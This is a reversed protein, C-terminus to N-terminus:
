QSGTMHEHVYVRQTVCLSTCVATIEVCKNKHPWAQVLAAVRSKGYTCVPTVSSCM